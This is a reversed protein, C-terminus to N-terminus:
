DLRKRAGQPSPSEFAKEINMSYGFHEFDRPYLARVMEESESDYAEFLSNSSQRSNVPKHWDPSIELRQEVASLSAEMDEISGIFDPEIFDLNMQYSMSRFHPNRKGDSQKLLWELFIKFEPSFHPLFETEIVQLVKNDNKPSVVVKDWFASYIRAFPNRSISFVFPDHALQLDEPLYKFSAKYEPNFQHTNRFVEGGGVALTWTKCEHM